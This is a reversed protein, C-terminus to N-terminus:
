WCTHAACGPQSERAMRAVAELVAAAAPGSGSAPMPSTISTTYGVQPLAAGLEALAPSLLVGDQFGPHPSAQFTNEKASGNGSGGQAIPM